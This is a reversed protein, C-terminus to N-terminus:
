SGGVPMQTERGERCQVPHLSHSPRAFRSSVAGGRRRRTGSRARKKRVYRVYSYDYATAAEQVRRSLASHLRLFLLPLTCARVGHLPPPPPPPPIARQLRGAIPNEYATSCCQLLPIIHTSSM